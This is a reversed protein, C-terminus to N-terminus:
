FIRAIWDYSFPRNFRDKLSSGIECIVIIYSSWIPFTMFVRRSVDVSVRVFPHFNLAMRTTRKPFFFRGFWSGPLTKLEVNKKVSAITDSTRDKSAAVITLRLIDISRQGGGFQRYKRRLKRRERLGYNCNENARQSTFTRVYVYVTVNRVTSRFVNLVASEALFWEWFAGTVIFRKQLLFGLRKWTVRRSRKAITITSRRMRRCAYITIVLSLLITIVRWQSVCLLDRETSAGSDSRDDRAYQICMTILLLVWFM